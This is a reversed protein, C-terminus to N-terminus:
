RFVAAPEIRSVRWAAFLGSALSVGGLLAFAFVPVHWTLLFPFSPAGQILAGFLSVAGIGVGYGVVAVLAAQALLMRALLWSDAGMTKLAALNRANEVVFALFTQATIAAGVILALLVTLGISQPITTNAVFEGITATRLADQDFARLGTARSIEDAVAAPDLGPRPAALVFALTRRQAPAYASAEEYAAVVTALTSFTPGLRVVGGVRASRDNIEVEDGVALPRGPEGLLRAAGENVLIKNVERISGVGGALVERPAGALSVRDIGILRVAEIRGSRGRAPANGLYLPAAWAVGPVSRVRDLEIDRLPKPDDVQRVAADGVWIPARLNTLTGYSWSALGLGITAQQAMLLTAFALGCVLTLYRARDLLLMRLALGIM